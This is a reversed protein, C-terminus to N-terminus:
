GEETQGISRRPWWRPVVRRYAAYAAGFRRALRPEEVALVWTRAGAAAVLFVIALLWSGRALTVGLLVLLLGAFLPNRMRLYPGAVVFAPAPGRRARGRGALLLASRVALAGGGLVLLLGITRV